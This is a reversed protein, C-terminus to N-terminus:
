QSVQCLHEIPAALGCEPCPCCKACMGFGVKHPSPWHHHRLLCRWNAVSWFLVYSPWRRKGNVGRTGTIMIWSTQRGSWDFISASGAIMGLMSLWHVSRRTVSWRTWHRPSPQNVAERVDHLLSYCRQERWEEVSSPAFDARWERLTEPDIEIAKASEILEQEDEPPPLLDDFARRCRDEIITWAKPHLRRIMETGSGM